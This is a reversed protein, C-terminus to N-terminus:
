ITLFLFREHEDDIIGMAHPCDHTAQVFQTRVTSEGKRLIREDHTVLRLWGDIMGSASKLEGYLARYVQKGEETRWCWV